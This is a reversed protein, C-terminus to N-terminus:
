IRDYSYIEHIDSTIHTYVSKTRSTIDIVESLNKKVNARTVYCDKILSIAKLYIEREQINGGYHISAYFSNHSFNYTHTRSLLEKIRYYRHIVHPKTLVYWNLKIM